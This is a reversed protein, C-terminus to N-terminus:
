APKGNRGNRFLLPLYYQFQRLHLLRLKFIIWDYQLRNAITELKLGLVEFGKAAM